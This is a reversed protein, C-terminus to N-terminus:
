GFALAIAAQVQESTFESQETVAVQAASLGTVAALAAILPRKAVEAIRTAEVQKHATVAAKFAATKYCRECDVDRVDGSLSPDQMKRGCAQFGDNSYHTTQSPKRYM